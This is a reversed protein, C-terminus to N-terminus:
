SVKGFAGTHLHWFISEILTQVVISKFAEWHQKKTMLSSYYIMCKLETLETVWDHWVRQLGMSQLIGPKGTWWWSWSRAWVWTWLTLLTMQVDWERDDGEGAKLREWFWPRKLHTLEEYWTALTNSNWNWCWDKWHVNLWDMRLTPDGQLGFSEWSVEGIGCNSLM